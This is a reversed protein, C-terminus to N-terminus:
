GPWFSDHQPATKAGFCRTQWSLSGESREPHCTESYRALLEAPSAVSQAPPTERSISAGGAGFPDDEGAPRIWLEYVERRPRGSEDAVQSVADRSSWGASVLAAVRALVTADDWAPGAAVAGAIVLTYEGRPRQAQWHMLAEAVTGRWTEEYLKTLEGCVALRRDAGLVEAMDKLAALLRHPTEYVVLTHPERAVRQLRRRRDARKRPLMGLFIFSDTPLGAVTLAAILATPGPIPVVPFGAAISATVLRYGPDSITPTGAQSILAVDGQALTALITDLKRLENHEWFSTVPTHIHYRALLVRAARTDEAAILRVRRLTKLARLTIDELNGIPTAVIYLTGV